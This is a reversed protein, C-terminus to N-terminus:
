GHSYTVSRNPSSNHQVAKALENALQRARVLVANEIGDEALRHGVRPECAIIARVTLAAPSGALHGLADALSVPAPRSVARKPEQPPRGSPQVAAETDVGWATLLVRVGWYGLVWKRIVFTEEYDQAALVITRV